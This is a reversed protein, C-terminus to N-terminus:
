GKAQKGLLNYSKVESIGQIYEMIQSILETDCRVKEM